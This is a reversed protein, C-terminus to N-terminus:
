DALVKIKFKGDELVTSVFKQQKYAVWDMADWISRKFTELDRQVKTKKMQLTLM